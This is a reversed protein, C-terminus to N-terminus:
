VADAAHGGAPVTIVVEVETPAFRDIHEQVRTADVQHPGQRECHESSQRPRLLPRRTEWECAAEKCEVRRTLGVTLDAAGGCPVCFLVAGAALGLELLYALERNTVRALGLRRKPRHQCWGSREEFVEAGVRM